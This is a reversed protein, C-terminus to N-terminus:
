QLLGWPCRHLRTGVFVEFFQHTVNFVRLFAGLTALSSAFLSFLMGRLDPLLFGIPVVPPPRHTCNELGIM